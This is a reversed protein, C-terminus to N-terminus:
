TKVQFFPLSQRLGGEDYVCISVFRHICVDFGSCLRDIGNLTKANNKKKHTHTLSLFCNTHENETNIGNSRNWELCTKYKSIM